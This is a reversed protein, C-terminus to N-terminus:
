RRRRGCNCLQWSSCCSAALRWCATSRGGGQWVRCRLNRADPRHDACHRGGHQRLSAEDASGARHLPRAGHGARAGAGYGRWDGDAYAVAAPDPHVACLRGTLRVRRVSRLRWAPHSAARLPGLAARVGAPGGRVRRHVRQAVPCGQSSLRRAIARHRGARSTGHRHRVVCADRARGAVAHLLRLPPATPARVM